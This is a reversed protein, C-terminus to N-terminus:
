AVENLVHGASALTMDPLSFVFRDGPQIPVPDFRIPSPSQPTFVHLGFSGASYAEIRVDSAEGAPLILAKVDGVRIEDILNAAVGEVPCGLLAVSFRTFAKATYLWEFMSLLRQQVAAKRTGDPASSIGNAVPTGNVAKAAIRGPDDTLRLREALSRALRIALQPNKSMLALFSDRTFLLCETEQIATATDSRPKEDILSTEAFCQEPGLEALRVTAGNKHKSVAVRGRLIVYMGLGPDGERVIVQDKEYDCVLASEAVKKLLKPEIGAFFGIRGIPETLPPM